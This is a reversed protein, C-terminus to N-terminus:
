YRHKLYAGLRDAQTVEGDFEAEDDFEDDFHDSYVYDPERLKRLSADTVTREQYKGKRAIIYRLVGDTLQDLAKAVASTSTVEEPRLGTRYPYITQLAKVSLKAKKASDNLFNWEASCNNCFGNNHYDYYLISITNLLDTEFFEKGDADMKKRLQNYEKQYKGKKNWYSGM